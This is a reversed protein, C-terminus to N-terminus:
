ATIGKVLRLQTRVNAPDRGVDNRGFCLASEDDIWRMREFDLDHQIRLIIEPWVEDHDQLEIELDILEHDSSM